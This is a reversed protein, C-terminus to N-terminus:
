QRNISINKIRFFLYLLLLSYLLVYVAGFLVYLTLVVELMHGLVHHNFVAFVHIDITRLWSNFISLTPATVGRDSDPLANWIIIIHHRYISELLTPLIVELIFM